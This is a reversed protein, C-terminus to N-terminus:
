KKNTIIKIKKGEPNKRIEELITSHTIKSKLLKERAGRSFNLAAIKVKKNPDGQSLIKGPVVVTEGEESISELDNLNVNIRKKRPGSLLEAVRQWGKNKQAAIITEVLQPDTKRKIQNNIKAKTKM